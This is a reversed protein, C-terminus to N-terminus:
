IPNEKLLSVSSNRQLAYLMTNELSKKKKLFRNRLRPIKM